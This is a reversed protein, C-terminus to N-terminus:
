QLSYIALNNCSFFIVKINYVHIYYVHIVYMYTAFTSMVCDLGTLPYGAPSLTLYCTAYTM